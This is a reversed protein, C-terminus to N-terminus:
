GYLNMLNDEYNQVEKLDKEPKMPKVDKVKVKKNLRLLLPGEDRQRKLGMKLSNEIQNDSLNVKDSNISNVVQNNPQIRREFMIRNQTTPIHCKSSTRPAIIKKTYFSSNPKTPKRKEGVISLWRKILETALGDSQFKELTPRSKVHFGILVEAGEKQSFDDPSYVIRRLSKILTLRQLGKRTIRNNSVDIYELQKMKKGGVCPMVLNRVGIDSLDNKQLVLIALNDLHQLDKIMDHDDDLGIDSLDLKVTGRLLQLLDTHYDNILFLNSIVVQSLMLDPYADAFTALTQSTKIGPSDLMKLQVAANWIQIAMEDPFGELSELFETNAAVVSMSQDYLSVPIGPNTPGLLPRALQSRNLSANAGLLAQFPKRVYRYKAESTTSDNRRQIVINELPKNKPKFYINSSQDDM